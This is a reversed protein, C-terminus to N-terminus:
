IWVVRFPAIFGIHQPILPFHVSKRSLSGVMLSLRHHASLRSLTVALLVLGHHDNLKSVSGVILRVRHIVM